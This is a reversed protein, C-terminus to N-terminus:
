GITSYVTDLGGVYLVYFMGMLEYYDIPRGEVEGNVMASLFDNTPQVKQAEVHQRIYAYISRAGDVRVAPDTARMLDNQWGIFQDLLKRPMGMLDLFVYSPFPVAFEEVFEGGQGQVERDIRRLDPARTRRFEERGGAHLVPQSHPPLASKNDAILEADL